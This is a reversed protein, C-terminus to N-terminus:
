RCAGSCPLVCASVAMAQSAGGLFAACSSVVCQTDVGGPMMSGDPCSSLVCQLLSWCTADCPNQALVQRCVMSDACLCKECSTSLINPVHATCEEFSFAATPTGADMAMPVPPPTAPRPRRPPLGPSASGAVPAASMPRSMPRAGDTVSTASRMPASAGGVLDTGAPGAGGRVAFTGGTESASSATGDGDLLLHKACGVLTALTFVMTLRLARQSRFRLPALRRTTAAPPLGQSRFSVRM